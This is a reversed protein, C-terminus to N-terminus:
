FNVIQLETRRNQARGEETANDAIPRIAGNSSARIKSGDVGKSVLYGKIIDARRQGLAINDQSNGGVNDTHGTLIVKEGSQMVRTVVLDLYAEIEADALKQTSNFPFYILAKSGVEKIKSSNLKAKFTVLDYMRHEPCIRKRKGAIVRVKDDDLSMLKSIQKARATGLSQEGTNNTEDTLNYGTIELIRNASLSNKISDRFTAWNADVQPKDDSCNFGIPILKKIPPAEKVPAVVARATEEVQQCCNCDKSFFWFALGCLIWLIFYVGKM